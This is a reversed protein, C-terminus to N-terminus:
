QTQANSRRRGSNRLTGTWPGTVNKVAPYKAQFAALNAAIVLYGGPALPVEAFTFSVGKTIRWNALNVTNTGRNFLEIYEEAVPEPGNAPQTPHYMIENIVVDGAAVPLATLLAAIWRPLM